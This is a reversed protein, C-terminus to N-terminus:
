GGAVELGAGRRELCARTSCAPVAALGPAAFPVPRGALEASLLAFTEADDVDYWTPLLEVPLRIEAARDLTTPLVEPTSWRVNEFLRAYPAKLGILYYGGDTAPGLVVREGPARLAALASAVLLPPLTPSDSNIILVSDHGASLLAVFGSLLVQGFDADQRCLLGWGQPLLPRLVSESGAPAFLAYCHRRAAVPVAEIAMATDRIFCASLESATEPGLLPSLRTKSRGPVPAKCVMAIAATGQM